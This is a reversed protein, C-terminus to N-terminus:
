LRSRGHKCANQVQGVQMVAGSVVSRDLV